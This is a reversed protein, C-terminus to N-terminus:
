HNSQSNIPRPSFREELITIVQLQLKQYEIETAEIDRTFKARRLFAIIIMIVGILGMFGSVSACITNFVGDSTTTSSSEAQEEGAIALGMFAYFLIGFVLIISGM